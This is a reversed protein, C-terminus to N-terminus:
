KNAKPFREFGFSINILPSRNSIWFHHCRCGGHWIKIALPFSQSRIEERIKSDVVTFKADMKADKSKLDANLEALASLAAVQSAQMQEGRKDDLRNVYDGLTFQV